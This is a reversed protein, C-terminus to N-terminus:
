KLPCAGECELSELDGGSLDKEFIDDITKLNKIMSLYQEETIEEYPAQAFGHESHLLFSVSKISNDYNNKLWEKIEPLEEKRYYVTVSIANDAWVTQIQKVLELQTVASMNKSILTDKLECPFEVVVTSRDESGDFNKVYEIHYGMDRCVKVLKDDSSMRIRRIYHESFGPHIGPTAGALLSLTGSPKVLTLRISEPWGNLKSWEKDFKKLERYVEDLWEIKDFSQCIGTIGLGVRMNKHVINNTKKHLYPMAAIAKQTKYLLKAARITEEKSQLNNLFLDSLDCTEGDALPTEGCNPLYVGDYIKNGYKNNKISTIIGVTHNDDVTINYVTQKEQLLEVSVVKHNYTEAVSVLEKYGSFMTKSGFRIPVNQERCKQEWTKKLVRGNQERLQFYIDLQQKKKQASENEFYNRLEAKRKKNVPSNPRGNRHALANQVSAYAREREQYNIWFESGDYEDYRKVLCVGNEIKADYGQQIAKQYTKVVRPDINVISEFGCEIAAWKALDSPTAFWDTRRWESFSSPVGTEKSFNEWEKTSFRRGLTRTLDLAAKEIDSNSFGSYKGNKEGQTDMSAHLACHDSFTMIELNEPRNDFSDYNKRHVVLGGSIWGNKQEEDHRAKWKEAEFFQSILRHEFLRKNKMNISDTHVMFYQKRNQQSIKEPAKRFHFLSDNKQLDKALKVEGGLLCVKHDPTVDFHSGNDLTVRVINKNYGTVRPNRGMKISVEGTNPDVSYVPVDNGTEALERITVSNRGDAVAVLTDGSFCPNLGECNDKQLEGLRGFKQTLPLNFFGYPEGNGNYGEWVSPLIYDYSDAYITNNSMARWNPINGLDWRKARLFLFDDADGLAITATRRVNGSVVIKGIINCIDLVVLYRLKKGERSKLIKSITEIGEILSGPGSAVGGFGKIKEGYGRVLITSYTFSEGTELFAKFTKRLLKVWGERSDPVIFDADNTKQHTITVNKKVRPLEHIDEKKVSFGVGGGLMLNEFLFCFDEYESIRTFFCNILSNAGFRKITSTGLQWLMRGALTCKLNFMLDFLEQAEESTYKAGIEQAGNICRAITQWWEETIEGDPLLRAYTRKYVLYGLSNFGWKPNKGVYKRLFDEPLIDSVFTSLYNDHITTM